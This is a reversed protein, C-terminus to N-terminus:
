ARQRGDDDGPQRVHRRDEHPDPQHLDGHVQVQLDVGDAQAAGQEHPAGAHRAAHRGDRRRARGPAHARGGLGDGARRHRRLAGAHRRDGAGARRHRAPLDAPGRGQRRAQPCLGPRACARRRRLRLHRGEEAGGGGGAAGAHDQRVVGARLDRHHPRAAPRRHRARYRPGALGHVLGGGRHAENAGLRMISGKGHMKEIQALAAELAKQKDMSGGDVVRLQPKEM